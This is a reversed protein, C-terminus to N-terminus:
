PTGLLSLAITIWKSSFPSLLLDSLKLHPVWFSFKFMGLNMSYQLPLVPSFLGAIFPLFADPPLMSLDAYHSISAVIHYQLVMVNM